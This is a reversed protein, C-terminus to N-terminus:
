MGVLKVEKGSKPMFKKKEKLERDMWFITGLAPGGGRAILAALFAEAEAVKKSCEEVAKEAVGRAKESKKTAAETSLKAKRLPLPDEAQHQALENKARMAAVGSGESKAKLEETKANYCDEQEKLKGLEAKLEAEAAALEQHRKEADAFSKSVDDLLTQAKAIEAAGEGSGQPRLLLDKVSKQHEWLLYEVFGMKKDFNADIKAFEQRFQVVSLTKGLTELLKHSWFEDLANGEGWVEAKKGEPLANYQHKDLEIFKQWQTYITEAEKGCEVWFANLFFKAQDQHRLNCVKDFEAKQKDNLDAM